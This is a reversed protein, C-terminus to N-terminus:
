QAHSGESRAAASAECEEKVRQHRYAFMKNLKRSVLWGGLLEGFWGFLVKYEISDIYRCSDEDISEVSHTHCWRAFPGRIQVDQFSQGPQYNQHEAIWYLPIFGLMSIKLTTRSGEEDICAPTAVVKVPEWPPTLKEIAVPDHHWDFVLAAPAQITSEYYFRSM